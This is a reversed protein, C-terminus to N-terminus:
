IWDSLVSFISNKEQCPSLVEERICSSVQSCCYPSSLTAGNVKPLLGVRHWIWWQYRYVGKLHCLYTVMRDVKNKTMCVYKCLKPNVRKIFWKMYLPTQLIAGSLGLPYLFLCLILFKPYFLLLTLHIKLFQPNNEIIYEFATCFM